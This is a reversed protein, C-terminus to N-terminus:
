VSLCAHSHEGITENMARVHARMLPSDPNQTGTEVDKLKLVLQRNVTSLEENKKQLTQNEARIEKLEEM